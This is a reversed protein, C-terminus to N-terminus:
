LMAVVRCPAEAGNKIKLPLVIVKAGISRDIDECQLFSNANSRHRMDIVVAPVILQDIALSAV